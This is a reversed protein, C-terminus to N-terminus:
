KKKNIDKFAYYLALQKQFVNFHKELDGLEREETDDPDDKGHRFIMRRSIKEDNNENWLNEYGALQRYFSGYIRGSSKEDLLVLKGDRDRAVIDLTGGYKHTESVLSHESAVWKFGHRSWSTKFKEFIKGGQDIANKSFASLDPQDDSFWCEILFHAVTGIDAAVDTVKKYDEGAQGLKWAWAILFSQDEGIKSITSGGPVIQGDKTKYITHSRTVSLRKIM